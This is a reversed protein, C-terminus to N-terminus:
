GHLAGDDAGEIPLRSFSLDKASGQRFALSLKALAGHGVHLLAMLEPEITVVGTALSDNYRGSM